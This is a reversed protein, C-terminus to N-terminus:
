NANYKSLATKYEYESCEIDADFAQKMLKLGNKQDKRVGFRGYFMNIGHALITIGHGLSASKAWLRGTEHEDQEVGEGNWYHIGLHYMADPVKLDAYKKLYQVRAIDLEEDSKKDEPNIAECGFCYDSLYQIHPNDINQIPKLLSELQDYEEDFYLAYAKDILDQFDDVM